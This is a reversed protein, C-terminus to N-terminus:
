GTRGVVATARRELKGWGVRYGRIATAVSKVVVYYMLQRYGFRQVPLWVLATTSWPARRESRWASRGPRFTWFSSRRGTSCPASPPTTRRGTGGSPLLPRLGGVCAVLRHGSRGPARRCHPPDPVALDAAARRVGVGSPPHQLPRRPAEVPMAPDRVVVLFRQNLLGKVTDPAETFARASSDFEVRWGASQCALTLDQDEALTDAPYGGLQTLAERRWRQAAAPVVTVAGLAALARRELNQATIYELGQWRTILNLRNGVLANGAVAGVRPDAFWRALRPLTEPPFLTDADLAVVVEGRCLALGRNLARAKGGNEFSLLSVRPENSFADRVAAATGDGSGDDIVLVELRPWESQLIREVSSVIVKEENFCPILVSILPGTAPDLMPPERGPERVRHWLSLTALFALRAVGLVIAVTFLAQMGANLYRFFGFGLRDLFLEWSSRSTPPLADARSMGALQDVTVLRLGRARIADILGPLAEVIRSRDGGADHLLVVQGSTPGTDALRAM